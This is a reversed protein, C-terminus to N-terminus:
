NRRECRVANTRDFKCFYGGFRTKRIEISQGARPTFTLPVTDTQVWVAGDATVLLLKNLPQTYAVEVITTTIRDAPLEEEERAPPQAKEAHKPKEATKPFEPPAKGFSKRQEQAAVEPNRKFGAAKMAARYCALEQADDTMQACRALTDWSPPTNQEQALAPAAIQLAGTALAAIAM